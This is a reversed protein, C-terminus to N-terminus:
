KLYILILFFVKKIFKEPLEKLLLNFKNRNKGIIYVIYNNQLFTKVLEKGLGSTGGTILCNQNEM